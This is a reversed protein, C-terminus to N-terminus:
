RWEGLKFYVPQVVGSPGSLQQMINAPIASRDDVYLRTPGESSLVRVFMLKGRKRYEEVTESGQQRVTVVPLESAEAAAQVEAPLGPSESTKAAPAPEIGGASPANTPVSSPAPSSPVPATGPDNITPPAQVPPLADNTRDQALACACCGYLVISLLVNKM